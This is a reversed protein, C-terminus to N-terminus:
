SEFLTAGIYNIVGVKDTAELINDDDGKVIRFKVEVETKNLEIYHADEQIRFEITTDQTNYPKIYVSDEIQRQLPASLSLADMNSLACEPMDDDGM